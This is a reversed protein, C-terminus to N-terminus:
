PGILRLFLDIDVQKFTTDDMLRLPNVIGLYNQLVRWSNAKSGM